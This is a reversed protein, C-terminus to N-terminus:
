IAEVDLRPLHAVEFNADKQPALASIPWAELARGTANVLEAVLVQPRPVVQVRDEALGLLVDEFAPHRESRPRLRRCPDPEPEEDTGIRKAIRAEDGLERRRQVVDRITACDKSQAARPEVVLMLAVPDVEAPTGTLPKVPHVLCHGRDAGNEVATGRRRGGVAPVLEVVQALLWPRDLLM